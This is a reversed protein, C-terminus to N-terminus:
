GNSISYNADALGQVGWGDWERGERKALVIQAGHRHTQKQETSVDDTGYKLNWM